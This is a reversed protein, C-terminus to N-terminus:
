VFTDFPALSIQSIDQDDTEFFIRLVQEGAELSVIQDPTDAFNKYGGTRPVDIEATEYVSGGKAFTAIVSRDYFPTGMLLSLAYDGAAAVDITYELWEGADVYGVAELGRSFEVSDGPRFDTSDQRAPTQDNYALGQGGTDFLIASIQAGTTANVVWPAGDPTFASQLPDGEYPTLSIQSLDQNDTEFFVRLVQEGAELWVIQDPTEVFNKYGGTQPVDIEATEYVTGGKAFTAVVSRDLFPTGMLLSLAYDGAAAVDITYELWEGADVYGVSVLGRSFEVSEDPRFGTSDERGATEDHYAVGEGGADFLIASIELGTTANVKWASGDSTFATQLPLPSFDFFDVVGDNDVDSQLTDVVGDGNSDETTLAYPQVNRVLFVTDNYDYNGGGIYDQLGILVGPVVFGLADRAEFYRILHGRDSGVLGSFDPDLRNVEPDSWAAFTPRGDVAVRMGFPADSEILASAVEGTSGAGIVLGEPSVTQGQQDDQAFLETSLASTPAYTLLRAVDNQRLFAALQVVEVPKSSDLRTLYPALIEDGVTEVRGGNRLQSQAMDSSYGFAWVVDEVSPEQGLESRNQALGALAIRAQADTQADTDIVLEAAYRVAIRDQETDLGIFRVVVEASAGPAISAPASVIEFAPSDSGEVNVGLLNLVGAGDNRLTFSATDRFEQGGIAETEASKNPLKISTFVLRPDAAGPDLGEVALVGQDSADGSLVPDVGSIVFVLDNYDYNGLPTDYAVL